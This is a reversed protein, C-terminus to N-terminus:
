FKKHHRADSSDDNSLGEIIMSDVNVNLVCVVALLFEM